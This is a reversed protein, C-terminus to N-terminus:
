GSFHDRPPVEELAASQGIRGGELTIVRDAVRRVEAANHSVYITPVHWEAVVREFYALIRDKLPEDLAALPEDLLLLEPGSLLSRGLAVRQKEGGSLHRPSRGLLDGLELM